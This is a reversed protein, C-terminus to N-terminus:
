RGHTADGIKELSREADRLEEDEPEDNSVPVTDQAAEEADIGTTAANSGTTAGPRRVALKRYWYGVGRGPGRDKLELAWKEILHWSVMACAVSMALTVVVYPVYGWRNWGLYAALQQMLFGYLYIGYSYDNKSGIRRLPEPLRVALWLLAYAFAPFGFIGFGGNFVTYVSVAIALLGLRDDILVKDAYVAFCAGWLFVLTLNIQFPDALWPVAKGLTDPSTLRMLQLLLFVLTLAPVIVKARTLVGFLVLLAIMLYCLWEYRLTWLSGNLVSGAVAGYPTDVFVDLIGWQRITLDWNATFYSLPGGPTAVFYEDWPRAELFWVLPGIVLAGVVLVVWFAPFIRLARRWLFEVVGTSMGSKTILYGSIAFFGLVAFGGFNEQNLSLRFFPDEGRGSLPFAHSLIVASALLLRLLGLANSRGRMADRLTRQEQPRYRFATRLRSGASVTETPSASTM